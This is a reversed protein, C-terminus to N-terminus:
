ADRKARAKARRKSSVAYAHPRADLIKDGSSEIGDCLRTPDFLLRECGHEQDDLIGAIELTGAVISPRDEPWETTPDTPDDGDGGFQIHLTFTAPGSALREILDDRLYNPDRAAAEEATLSATGLAPEWRYRGFTATDDAAVFRFAHIAFYRTQLFSALPPTTLLMQAARQSEPRAAVFAGLAALDIKGTEPDPKRLRAFELVEEPTRVIFASNNISVIDTSKREDLHFKVAMGRPERGADHAAVDGSGNSFRVTTRTPAGQMHPARTLHAADPTATFTAGCCTGKAHAARVEPNGGFLADFAAVLDEALQNPM